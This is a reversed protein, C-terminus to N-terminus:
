KKLRRAIDRQVDKKQITERKDYLKKGKAVAIEIKVKGNSFYASLPIVTLGKEAVKAQLKRIESKNLLLRRNRVPHHNERNGHSYESIHVGNLWAEGEKIEVYGDAFSIKGERLSKVETGTLAIGAERTQIIFYEFRAKKNVAINKIAPTNDM